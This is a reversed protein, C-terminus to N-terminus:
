IFGDDGFTDIAWRMTHLCLHNYDKRYGVILNRAALGDDFRCAGM